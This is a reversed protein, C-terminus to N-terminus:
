APRTDLWTVVPGLPAGDRDLPLVSHWQASVAVLGVDHLHGSEALEDLCEVLSALYDRGSLTGTGDDGIALDVKRRALAGPLPQTDADLVLGRVSSTGLDLALINM